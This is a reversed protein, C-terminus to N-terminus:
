APSLRYREHDIARDWVAAFADACLSVVAPDQSFQHGVLEGDGSFVSFRVLRDDFLWYPNGPLALTSAWARPLWRVQEGAAINHGATLSHEFRVYDSVPESVIRARLVRVGRAVAARVLERYARGGETDPLPRGQQWAVYRPDGTLHRDHM